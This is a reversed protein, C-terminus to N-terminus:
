HTFGLAQTMAMPATEVNVVTPPSKNNSTITIDSIKITTVNGLELMHAM